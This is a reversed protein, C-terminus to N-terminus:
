KGQATAQKAAVIGSWKVLGAGLANILPALFLVYPNGTYLALIAPIAASGVSWAIVKAAHLAVLEVTSVTTNM